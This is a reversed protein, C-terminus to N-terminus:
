SIPIATPSSVLGIANPNPWDLGNRHGPIWDASLVLSYAAQGSLCMRRNSPVSGGIFARDHEPVGFIPQSAGDGLGILETRWPYFVPLSTISKPNSLKTHRVSQHEASFPHSLRPVFCSGAEVSSNVSVSSRPLSLRLSSQITFQSSKHFIEFALGHIQTSSSTSM